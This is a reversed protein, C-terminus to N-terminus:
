VNFVVMITYVLLYGISISIVNYTNPMPELVNTLAIASQGGM